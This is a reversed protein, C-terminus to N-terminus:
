MRGDWQDVGPAPLNIRGRSRVCLRGPCTRDTVIGIL